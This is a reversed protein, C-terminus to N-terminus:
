SCRRSEFDGTGACADCRGYFSEGESSLQYRWGTGVCYVCMVVRKITRKM